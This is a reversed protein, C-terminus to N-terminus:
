PEDRMPFLTRQIQQAVHAELAAVIYANLGVHDQHALRVLRAHLLPPLRLQTAVKDTRM